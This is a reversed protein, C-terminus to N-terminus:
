CGRPSYLHSGPTSSLLTLLRATLVPALWAYQEVSAGMRGALLAVLCRSLTAIASVASTVVPIPPATSVPIPLELTLTCTDPCHSPPLRTLLHKSRPGQLKEPTNRSMYIGGLRSPATTGTTPLREGTGISTSLFEFARKHQLCCTLMLVRTCHEAHSVLREERDSRPHMTLSSLPKMQAMLIVLRFKSLVRLVLSRDRCLSSSSNISSIISHELSNGTYLGHSKRQDSGMFDKSIKYSMDTCDADLTCEEEVREKERESAQEVTEVEVEAPSVLSPGDESGHCLPVRDGSLYGLGMSLVMCVVAASSSLLVTPMHMQAPALLASYVDRLRGRPCCFGGLHPWGQGKLLKAVYICLQEAVPQMHHAFRITANGAKICSATGVVALGAISCLMAPSPCEALTCVQVVRSAYRSLAVYLM